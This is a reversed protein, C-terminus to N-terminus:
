SELKMANQFNVFCHVCTAQKVFSALDKLALTLFASYSSDLADIQGPLIIQLKTTSPQSM